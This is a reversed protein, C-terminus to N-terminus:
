GSRTVKEVARVCRSCRDEVFLDEGWGHAPLLGCAAKRYRIARTTEDLTAKVAHLKWGKIASGGSIAAGSARPDPATTLWQYEDTM